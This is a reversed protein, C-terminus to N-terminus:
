LIHIYIHQKSQLFFWTAENIIWCNLIEVILVRIMENQYNIMYQRLKLYKIIPNCWVYQIEINNRKSFISFLSSSNSYQEMLTMHISTEVFASEFCSSSMHQWAILNICEIFCNYVNKKFSPTPHHNLM